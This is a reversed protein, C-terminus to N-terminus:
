EDIKRLKKLMSKLKDVDIKENVNSEDLYNQLIDRKIDEKSTIKMNRKINNLSRSTIVRPVSEFDPNLKMVDIARDFWLISSADSSVLEQAREIVREYLGEARNRLVLASKSPNKNRSNFKNLKIGDAKNNEFDARKLMKEYDKIEQPKNTADFRSELEEKWRRKFENVANIGLNNQLDRMSVKRGDNLKKLLAKVRKTDVNM